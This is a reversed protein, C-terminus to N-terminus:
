RYARTGDEHIVVVPVGAAVAIAIMDDTGRSEGDMRFAIVLDAGSKLMDRNRIPGAAKGHKEWDASFRQVNFGFM